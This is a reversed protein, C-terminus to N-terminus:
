RKGEGVAYSHVRESDIGRIPHVVHGSPPGGSGQPAARLNTRRRREIAEVSQLLLAFAGLAAQWIWRGFTWAAPLKSIMSPHM